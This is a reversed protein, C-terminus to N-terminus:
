VGASCVSLELQQCEIITDAEEERELKDEMEVEAFEQAEEEEDGLIIVRLNKEPCRHNPGFALGCQFCRRESIRKKYEDYPLTRSGRNRDRSFHSESAGKNGTQTNEKSIVNSGVSGGVTETRSVVGSSGQYRFGTAASRGQPANYNRVEKLAEEIDRAIEMARSLDKPDHPRVQGRIGPRLGAMFYGLTQEEDKPRAQAILLEFEQIYEEVSATQKIMALREYVTGRGNRGYRRMLARTFDEWTPNKAKDKWLQFWHCANGEMSVFAVRLKESTKIRHVDFFKEARALWGLPDNGEFTPLVVKKLWSHSQDNKDDDEESSATKTSETADEEFDSGKKTVCEVIMARMQQVLEKQMQDLRLKQEVANKKMEEQIEILRTGHEGTTKEMAAM